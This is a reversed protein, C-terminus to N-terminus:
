QLTDVDAQTVTYSATFEAEDGPALVDIVNLTNTSTTQTIWSAFTPTLANLVGKHTDALTVNTIPVTGNNKVRYTYIVVTGAAVNTDQSAVKSVTLSPLINLPVPSSGTSTATIPGAGPDYSGTATATGDLKGDASTLLALDAPLVTYPTSTFTIFDNPGLKDWDGDNTTGVDTSDNVQGANLVSNDTTVATPTLFTLAPGTAEQIDSVGVNSLTVNGSNQVAYTYIIKDGADVKGDNNVDGGPAFVFSRVVAIKPANDEVDVSETANATVGDAPGSPGTGKVEVSNTVAAYATISGATLVLLALAGTAANVGKFRHQTVKNNNMVREQIQVKKNKLKEFQRTM